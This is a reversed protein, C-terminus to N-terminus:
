FLGLIHQQTSDSLVADFDVVGKKSTPTLSSCGALLGQNEFFLSAAEIIKSRVIAAERKTEFGLYIPSKEAFEACTVWLQCLFKTAGGNKDDSKPAGLM